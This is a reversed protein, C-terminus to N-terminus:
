AIHLAQERQHLLEVRILPLVLGLRVRRVRLDHRVRFGSPEDDSALRLMKLLNLHDELLEARALRARFSAVCADKIEGRRARDIERGRHPRKVEFLRLRTKPRLRRVRHNRRVGAAVADDRHTVRILQVFDLGDDLLEVLDARLASRGADELQLGSVRRFDRLNQGRRENTIVGIAPRLLARRDADIHLRAREDDGAIRFLKRADRRDDLLQILREARLRIALHLHHRQLLALHALQHALHPLNVVVLEGRLRLQARGVHQHQFIRRAVLEDEGAALLLQRQHLLNEFVQLSSGRRAALTLRLKDLHALDLFQAPQLRENLLKVRFAPLVAVTAIRRVRADDDIGLVAAEDDRRACIM